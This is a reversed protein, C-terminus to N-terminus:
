SAEKNYMTTQRRMNLKTASNISPHQVKNEPTLRTVPESSREEVPVISLVPPKLEEITKKHLKPIRKSSAQISSKM